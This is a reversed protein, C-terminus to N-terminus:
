RMIKLFFRPDGKAWPPLEVDKVRKKNQTVGLDLSLINRIFSPDSMYFEPILEKLSTPNEMVNLWDDKMSKFLRDPKDFRGSQLKLM